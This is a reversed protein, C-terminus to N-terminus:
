RPNKILQELDRALDDRGMVRLKIVQRSANLMDNNSYYSIGLNWRLLSDDPYVEVLEKYLMIAKDYKGQNYAVDAAWQKVTRKIKTCGTLLVIGALFCVVLPRGRRLLNM